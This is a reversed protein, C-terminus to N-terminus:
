ALLYNNKIFFVTSYTNLAFCLFFTITGILFYTFLYDKRQSKPYYLCRIIVTLFLINIAFRILLKYFDDDFWPLGLITDNIIKSNGSANLSFITNLM